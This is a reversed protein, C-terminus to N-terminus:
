GKDQLRLFRASALIEAQLRQKRERAEKDEGWSEAQVEEELRSLYFAREGTLHKEIVAFALVLSSFLSSLVCAASLQMPSLSQLWERISQHIAPPQELPIIGTTTQWIGGCRKSMWGVVPDWEEHQRKAIVESGTARYSLTDTDVYVLLAEIIAEENGAIRDIATYALVTLPMQSRIFKQHAQWETAIAEALKETPVVLPKKGPTMLPKGKVTVTFADDCPTVDFALNM